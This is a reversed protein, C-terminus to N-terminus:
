FLASLLWYLGLWILTAGIVYMFCVLCFEVIDYVVTPQLPHKQPLAEIIVWHLKKFGDPYLHTATRLLREARDLFEPGNSFAAIFTSSLYILFTVLVFPGWLYLGLVAWILMAMIWSLIKILFVLM